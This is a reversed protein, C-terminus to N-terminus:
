PCQPDLSLGISTTEMALVKGVLWRGAGPNSALVGQLEREREEWLM